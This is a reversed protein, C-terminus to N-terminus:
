VGSSTDYASWWCLLRKIQKKKEERRLKEENSRKQLEKLANKCKLEARGEGGPAENKGFGVGKLAKTLTTTLTDKLIADVEETIADMVEQELEIEM